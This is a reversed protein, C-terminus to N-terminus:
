VFNFFRVASYRLISDSREPKKLFLCFVNRRYEINMIRYEVNAKKYGCLTPTVKEILDAMKKAPTQASVQRRVGSAKREKCGTTLFFWSLVQSEWYDNM